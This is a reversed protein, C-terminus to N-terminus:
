LPLKNRTKTLTASGQGRPTATEARVRSMRRFADSLKVQLENLAAPAVCELMYHVHMDSHGDDQKHDHGHAHGHGHDQGSETATHWPSTLVVEKVECAAAAPLVFLRPFDRLRAEADDLAKRQADTRPAHEFGVLNDLPTKLEISLHGGDVAVQLDAVGHEHAGHAQALGSFGLALVAALMRKM